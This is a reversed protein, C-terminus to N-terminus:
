PTIEALSAPCLAKKWRPKLIRGINKLDYALLQKAVGTAVKVYLEKCQIDLETKSTSFLIQVSVKCFELVNHFSHPSIRM